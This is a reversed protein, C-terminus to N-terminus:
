GAFSNLMKERKRTGMRKWIIGVFIDYEGIQQNVVDQADRGM